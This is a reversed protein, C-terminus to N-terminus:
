EYCCTQLFKVKRLAKLLYAGSFPHSLQLALKIAVGNM